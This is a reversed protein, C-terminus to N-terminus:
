DNQVPPSKWALNTVLLFSPKCGVNSLASIESSSWIPWVHGCCRLLICFLDEKDVLTQKGRPSYNSRLGLFKEDQRFQYTISSKWALFPCTPPPPHTKRSAWSTFFGGAICSIRTRNRPWSSGRSFPYAVWDLIRLIEQHSLQYLIWRCHPLRPNSRQTPFLGQLLSRSGVGTNQGPSNWPSYLGLPWLSDSM